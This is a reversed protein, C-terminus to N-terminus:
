RFRDQQRKRTEEEEIKKMAVTEVRELLHVFSAFATAFIMAADAIQQQAQCDDM